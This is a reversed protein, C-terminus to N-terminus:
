FRGNRLIGAAPQPKNGIGAGPHIIWLQFTDIVSFHSTIIKPRNHKIKLYFMIISPHSEFECENKSLEFKYRTKPLTVVKIARESSYQFSNCHTTDPVGQLERVLLRGLTWLGPWSLAERRGPGTIEQLFLYKPVAVNM